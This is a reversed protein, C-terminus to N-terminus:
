FIQSWLAEYDLLVTIYPIGYKKHKFREFITSEFFSIKNVRLDRHEKEKFVWLGVGITAM